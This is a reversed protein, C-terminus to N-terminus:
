RAPGGPRGSRRQTNDWSRMRRPNIRAWILGPRPESPLDEDGAGRKHAAIRSLRLVEAPEEVLETDGEILLGRLDSMEEGGELLLAVEPRRRLNALRAGRANVFVADGDRYYSLPVAHPYGGPGVTTLIAWRPGADIFAYAEERTMAAM